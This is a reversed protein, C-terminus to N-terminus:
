RRGAVREPRGAACGGPATRRRRDTPRRGSPRVCPWVLAASRAQGHFPRAKFDIHRMKKPSLGKMKLERRLDDEIGHRQPQVLAVPDPDHAPVPVALGGQEGHEGPPQLGVGAPDGDAAPHPHAHEALGVGEVVRERDLSATTPSVGSCTHAPSARARSTIRPRSASTGQSAGTPVSLPPCRRRTSSAPSSVPSQSTRSSSSGVLWRSTSAIVQSAPWRFLRQAGLAPPSTTTVWSRQNRSSTHM